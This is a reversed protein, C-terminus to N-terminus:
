RWERNTQDSYWLNRIQGALRALDAGFGPGPASLHGLEHVPIKLFQWAATALREHCRRVVDMDHSGALLMGARIAPRQPLNKLRSYALRIGALSATAFVLAISPKGSDVLLSAPNIELEWRTNDSLRNLQRALSDVLFDPQLADAPHMADIAVLVPLVQEYAPTHREQGNSSGGPSHHSVRNLRGSQLQTPRWAPNDM